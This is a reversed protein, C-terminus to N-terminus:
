SGRHMRDNEAETFGPRRDRDFHGISKLHWFIRACARCDVLGDHAGVLEEGFLHRYAEGLKPNKPKNGFGTEVMRPTPPLNCIFLTEQMTDVYRDPWSKSPDRGMIEQMIHVMRIDFYGNHAVHTHCAHRLNFFMAMAIVLPIGVESALEHTIGHIDSAEKPIRWGKPKIIANMSMLETGGDDTVLAALQVVRPQQPHANPLHKNPIGTTESDWFLIPM